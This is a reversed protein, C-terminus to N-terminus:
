KFYLKNKMAYKNIATYNEFWKGDFWYGGRKGDPQPPEVYKYGKANRKGDGADKYTEKLGETARQTGNYIDAAFGRVSNDRPDKMDNTRLNQERSRDLNWRATETEVGIKEILKDYQEILKKKLNSDTTENIAKALETAQQNIILKKEEQMKDRQAKGQIANQVVNALDVSNQNYQPSETAANTQHSVVQGSGAANQGALLPNFGAKMLDTQRRQVANDERQFIQQQLDKAYAFQKEAHQKQWENLKKQEEWQKKNRYEGVGWQAAGIIGNIISGIM